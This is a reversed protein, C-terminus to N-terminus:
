KNMDIEYKALVGNGRPHGHEESKTLAVVGLEKFLVGDIMAKEQFEEITAFFQDDLYLGKDIRKGKAVEYCNMGVRHTKEKYEFTLNEIMTDYMRDVEFAAIIAKADCYLPAKKKFFM